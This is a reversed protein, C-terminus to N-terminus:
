ARASTLRRHLGLRDGCIQARVVERGGVDVIGAIPLTVPRGALEPPLDDFGDVYNGHIEAHFAARSGATFLISLQLGSPKVVVSLPPGGASIEDTCRLVTEPDELWRCVAQETAVDPDVVPQDWPAPHPREIENVQGSRLQLKRAFYDEEAWGRKLLSNEICFLTIGGWSSCRGERSSVGHETFRLAVADPAYVVDHVTVCLGPFLELQAVTAPLYNDDRGDLLFGGISLCYDPAMIRRAVEPAHGTLFDVAFGRLLQAQLSVPM